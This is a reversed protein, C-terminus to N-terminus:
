LGTWVFPLDRVLPPEPKLTHIVGSPLRLHQQWNLVALREPPSGPIRSEQNRPSASALERNLLVLCPLNQPPDSLGVRAVKSSIQFFVQVHSSNANKNITNYLFTCLRKLVHVMDLEEPRGFNSRNM